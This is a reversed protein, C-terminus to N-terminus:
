AQLAQGQTALQQALAARQSALEHFLARVAAEGTAFATHIEEDSAIRLNMLLLQFWM